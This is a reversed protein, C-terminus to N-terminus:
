GRSVSDIRMEKQGTRMKEGPQGRQVREKERWCSTSQNLRVQFDVHPFCIFTVRPEVLKVVPESDRFILCSDKNTSDFQFCPFESDIGLHNVTEYVCFHSRDEVDSRYTHSMTMLFSFPLFSLFLSSSLSPGERKSKVEKERSGKTRELSMREKEM